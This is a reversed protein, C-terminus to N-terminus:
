HVAAGERARMPLLFVLAAAVVVLGADLWLVRQLAEGFGADPAASFFVTGLLAVGAAGAFQQVANLTGSAAGVEHDAVGALVTDFYPAVVFGFGLGMVALAPVFDWSSAADRAGPVATILWVTGVVMVAAGLHLVHRGFRPALLGGALGSAVAVGLSFPIFTLGAHIASFGRGIQLYLGFALLMGMMGAFFVVAFALGGSFARRALLSPMVLPDAGRAAIRRELWAFVGLLVAAAGMAVYTWTPWGLERGQILPYMLLGAAVIVLAMGALDLRPARELRSEPVVRYAGWLALAGLPLNILFVMRWGTGLLDGDVLAGGVIPGCVAALGMVPGFLSFAKPLEDPPFVAKIIGFGQPILIAAFAGQLLRSAVLTGPSAAMGCLVSAAVFGASGILFLRRRGYIDGLRGGTILGVAFTLAYGGVIWQLATTSAGLDTRIAPAAVNVVTSDLLDMCEAALIVFLILWRRPHGTQRADVPPAELTASM